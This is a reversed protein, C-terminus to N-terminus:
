ASVEVKVGDEDVEVCKLVRPVKCKDSSGDGETIPVLTSVDVTCAVFRTATLFYRLAQTPSPSCHLGDGCADRDSWKEAEPKSGPSYDWGRESKYSDDVAKYVTVKGSRTVKLDHYKIWDEAVSLDPRDIIVGGKITARGSHRHVAVHSGARVTASGYARVTASDYARVTASDYARVTASGSAWVTASGYAWVTASGYAWVTASGSAWVTASDYARVTASDYARVTASDYAWVTASDTVVFEGDGVCKPYDGRKLAADLESQNKVKVYRM